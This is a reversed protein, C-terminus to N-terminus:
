GDSRRNGAIGRTGPQMVGAKRALYIWRHVNRLYAKVDGLEAALAPAPAKGEAVVRDYAAALEAFWELTLGGDPRQLQEAAAALQAKEELVTARRPRTVGLSRDQARFSLKVWDDARGRSAIFGGAFHSALLGLDPGPMGLRDRVSKPEANVASEIASTPLRRTADGVPRGRGEVYTETIRLEGDLDAFRCYVALDAPIRPASFVRVWGGTGVYIRMDLLRASCPSYGCGKRAMLDDAM